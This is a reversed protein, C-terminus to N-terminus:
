VRLSPIVYMELALPGGNRPVEDMEMFSWCRVSVYKKKRKYHKFEFFIACEKDVLTDIPTQIYVRNNFCVHRREKKNAIDTNLQPEMLNGDGDGVSVTIMPEQYDEADKLGIKHIDLVLFQDGPERNDPLNALHRELLECPTLEADEERKPPQMAAAASNSEPEERREAREQIAMRIEEESPLGLTDNSEGWQSLDVPFDLSEEMSENTAYRALMPRLAVIEEMSPGVTPGEM